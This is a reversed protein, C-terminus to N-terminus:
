KPGGSRARKLPKLQLSQEIAEQYHNTILRYGEERHLREAEKGVYFTRYYLTSEKLQREFMEMMRLSWRSTSATGITGRIIMGGQYLGGADLIVSDPNEVQNVAYFTEGKLTGYRKKKVWGWRRLLMLSYDQMAQGNRSKGLDPIEDVSRFVPVKRTRFTDCEAYKLRVEGEASALMQKLDGPTMFIQLLRTDNHRLM